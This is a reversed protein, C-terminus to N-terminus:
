YSFAAQPMDIFAEELVRGEMEIPVDLGLLTLMTPALDLNNCERILGGRAIGPGYMMLIGKPDHCGSKAMETSYVLSEFPFSSEKELTPFYCRSEDTITNDLALNVTISNEVTTVWFMPQDPTDVYAAELTNTILDRTATSDTYINFQDSMTSLAEARDEVGIIELLKELSRFQRVRKGGKITSIYPKQGMSSAVVLVTEDDILKLMRALLEDAAQYGHEIARGYIRVEDPTAEEQFAEPEMAKWYTHMYHAVHNTHFTALAPRHKQYLRSFFDFNV